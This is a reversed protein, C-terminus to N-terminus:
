DFSIQWDYVDTQGAPTKQLGKKDEFVGTTDNTDAVGWWPEVAIFDGPNSTNTTWVGTYPANSVVTVTHLKNEKVTFISPRFTDVIWADNNFERHKIEVGNIPSKSAIEEFDVLHKNDLRYTNYAYNSELTAKGLEINFAPHGGISYLLENNSPNEVQYQINLNEEDLEYVIRLVFDFPYMKKTAASSKLEFVARLDDSEVVKFKMDRAFGHQPIEYEVGDIITKGDKLTGIIPFLNPAHRAWIEPDAQWIYEFEDANNVASVIEAGLEEIKVTVIENKIEVTM